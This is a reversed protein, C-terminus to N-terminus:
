RRGRTTLEEFRPHDGGTVRAWAVTFLAPAPAVPIVAGLSIVNDGDRIFLPTKWLEFPLNPGKLAMAKM